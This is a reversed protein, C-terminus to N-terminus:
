ETLQQDLLTLDLPITDDVHEVTYFPSFEEVLWLVNAALVPDFVYIYWGHVEQPSIDANCVFDIHNADAEGQDSGNITSSAEGPSVEAYGSFDCPTLDALVTTMSITPDNKYLCVKAGLTSSLLIRLLSEKGTNTFIIAM